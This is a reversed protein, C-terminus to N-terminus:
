GASSTKIGKGEEMEQLRAKLARIDKRLEEMKLERGVMLRNIRESEELNRELEAELRKRETIDILMGSVADSELAASLLFQRTNGKRTVVEIEFREVRGKEKLLEMLRNRDEPNKYIAQSNTSAMEEPSDFEAMRVLADNIYIFEGDLRTRYVGVMANDVLTRYKVESEKLLEEAKKRGTIDRIIGVSNWVGRIKIGSISLEIPFEAGDKRLAAFEATKGVLEGEGSTFFRGLSEGARDRFREPTILAHLDKDIAEEASYGFMEEAKRNWLYIRGPPQLCIVADSASEVVARFMEESERLAQEAQRREIMEATLSATREKVKDELIINLARLEEQAKVLERSKRVANEYTSLLFSLTQVRGSRISYHEGGYDFEITKEDPNNRFQEPDRLLADIKSLLYEEDFPKTVYTEAGSELGRIVEKVEILRTLLLVPVHKLGNDRKIEGCMRFGDMFPMMIDSVILDPKLRRAEAMGEAGNRAVRVGYGKQSLLRKLILSEAESDEVLLIDKKADNPVM